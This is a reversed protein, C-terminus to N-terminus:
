LSSPSELLDLAAYLAARSTWERLWAAGFDLHRNGAVVHEVVGALIRRELLVVLVGELQVSQRLRAAPADQCATQFALSPLHWGCWSSMFQREHIAQSYAVLVALSPQLTLARMPTSSIGATPTPSAKISRFGRSGVSLVLVRYTWSNERRGTPAPRITASVDRLVSSLVCKKLWNASPLTPGSASM